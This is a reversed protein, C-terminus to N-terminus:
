GQSSRPRRNIPLNPWSRDFFAYRPDRPREVWGTCSISSELL